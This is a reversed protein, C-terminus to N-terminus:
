EGSKVRYSKKRIGSISIPVSVNQRHGRRYAQENLRTTESTEYWFGTSLEGGAERSELGPEKRIKKQELISIM